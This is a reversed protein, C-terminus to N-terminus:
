VNELFHFVKLLAEIKTASVVKIWLFPMLNTRVLILPCELLKMFLAYKISSPSFLSVLKPLIM